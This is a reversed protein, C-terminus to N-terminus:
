LKNRFLVILVILIETVQCEVGSMAGDSPPEGNTSNLCTPITTTTDCKANGGCKCTGDLLNSIIRSSFDCVSSEAKCVVSDTVSCVCQINTPDSDDCIPNLLNCGLHPLNNFDAPSCVTCEGSKQCFYGSPCTGTRTGDGEQGDVKCPVCKGLDTGIITGCAGNPFQGPM